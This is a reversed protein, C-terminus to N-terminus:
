PSILCSVSIVADEAPFCATEQSPVTQEAQSDEKDVASLGLLAQAGRLTASQGTNWM